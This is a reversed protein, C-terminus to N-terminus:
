GAQNKVGPPLWFINDDHESRNKHIVYAAYYNFTVPPPPANHSCHEENGNYKIETHEGNEFVGAEERLRNIGYETCINRDQPKGQRKADAKVRELGHGIGDVYIAPINRGLAVDHVEAREDAEERLKYCARDHTVAFDASLELESGCAKATDLVAHARKDYAQAALHKQRVIDALKPVANLLVQGARRGRQGYQAYDRVAKLNIKVKVSIRHHGNAKASHEPKLERLVKVVWIYGAANSFKPAPPM